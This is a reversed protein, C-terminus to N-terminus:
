LVEYVQCKCTEKFSFCGQLWIEAAHGRTYTNEEYM